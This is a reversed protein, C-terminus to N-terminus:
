GIASADKLGAIAPQMAGLWGVHRLYWNGPSPNSPHSPPYFSASRKKFRGASVMEGFQENVQRTSMLLRGDPTATLGKVWGYAPHDHQPHGLVLPAERVSPAYSNAIAQIDAATFELVEGRDSTHRGAKFIEIAQGELAQAAGLRDWTEAFSPFASSDSFSQVCVVDLAESYSVGHVQVYAKARRDFEADSLRGADHEVCKTGQASERFNSFALDCVTGIAESYSVNHTRAYAKAKADLDKDSPQGPTSTAQTDGRESAEQRSQQGVVTLADAYSLNHKKAHALTREHLEQDTM